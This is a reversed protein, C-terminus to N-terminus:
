VSRSCVGWPGLKHGLKSSQCYKRGYWLCLRDPSHTAIIAISSLLVMQCLISSVSSYLLVTCPFWDLGHLALRTSLFCRTATQPHHTWVDPLAAFGYRTQHSGQALVLFLLGEDAHCLGSLKTPESSQDTPLMIAVAGILRRWPCSAVWNHNEHWISTRTISHTNRPYQCVATLPASCSQSLQRAAGVSPEYRKCHMCPAPLMACSAKHRKRESSPSLFLCKSLPLCNGMGAALAVISGLQSQETATSITAKNLAPAQLVM